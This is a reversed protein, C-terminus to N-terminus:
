HSFRFAVNSSEITVRYIRVDTITNKQAVVPQTIFRREQDLMKLIFEDSPKQGTKMAKAITENKIASYSQIGVKAATSYNNFLFEKSSYIAFIKTNSNVNKHIVLRSYLCINLLSLNGHFGTISFGAATSDPNKLNIPKIGTMIKFGCLTVNGKSSDTFTNFKDARGADYSVDNVLLDAGATVDYSNYNDIAAGGFLCFRGTTKEGKNKKLGGIVKVGVKQNGNQYCNLLSVNTNDLHEALFGAEKSIREAGQNIIIQANKQDCNTIQIGDAVMKGSLTMEKIVTHNPGELMFITGTYNSKWELRTDRGDGILIITRKSPITITNKIPYKGAAFHIVPNKFTCLVASDVLIQIISDSANKPVEFIKTAESKTFGEMVPMEFTVNEISAIEDDIQSITDKSNYTLYPNNSTFINGVSTCTEAKSVRISPLSINAPRSVIVNDMLLSPGEDGLQIATANITEYVKNGQITVLGQSTRNDGIFFKNSHISTNHRLAFYGCQTKAIDAYASGTFFCNYVNFLGSFGYCNTVGINCYLFTCYWVEWNRANINEVSIGAKSCSQFRCNKVVCEADMANRTGGRLGFGVNKFIEESHEGFTNLYPHKGDWGHNVAVDARSNGDWTIRKISYASVGNMDLMTIGKWGYWTIITKEPNAGIISINTLASMMLTATIKYRGEPFYVVKKKNLKLADLARQIAKTDDTNGDGKAGFDKKVNYWSDFPGVFTEESNEFIPYDANKNNVKNQGTVQVFMMLFVVVFSLYNRFHFM